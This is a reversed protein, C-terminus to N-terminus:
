YPTPPAHDALGARDIARTLLEGKREATALDTLVKPVTEQSYAVISQAVDPDIPGGVPQSALQAETFHAWDKMRTSASHAATGAEHGLSTHVDERALIGDIDALGFRLDDAFMTQYRGVTLADRVNATTARDFSLEGAACQEALEHLDAVQPRAEDIHTAFKGMMQELNSIRMITGIGATPM